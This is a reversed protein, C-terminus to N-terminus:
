VNFFNSCAVDFFAVTVCALTVGDCTHVHLLVVLVVAFTFDQLPLELLLISAVVINTGCQRM